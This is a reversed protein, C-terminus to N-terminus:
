TEIGEFTIGTRNEWAQRASIAKAKSPGTYLNKRNGNLYGSAVWYKRTRDFTVGRVGSVGVEWAGSMSAHRQNESNTGVTLHETNCCLKNNCKHMIFLDAPVPGNRLEYITRHATVSKGKVSYRGYRGSFTGGVWPWCENEKGKKVLRWAGEKTNPTM